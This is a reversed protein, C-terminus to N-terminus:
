GPTGFGFSVLLKKSSKKLFATGEQRKGQGL